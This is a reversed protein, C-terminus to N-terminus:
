DNFLRRMCWAGSLQSCHARFRQVYTTSAYNIVYLLMINHREVPLCHLVPASTRLEAADARCDLAARHLELFRRRQAFPRKPGHVLILLAIGLLRWM